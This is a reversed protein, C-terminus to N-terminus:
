PQLLLNDMVSGEATAAAILTDNVAAFLPVPLAKQQLVSRVAIAGAMQLADFVYL